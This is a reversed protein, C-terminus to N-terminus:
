EGFRAKRVMKRASKVALRNSQGLAVLYAIVGGGMAFVSGVLADGSWYIPRDGAKSVNQHEPGTVSKFSQNIAETSGAGLSFLAVTSLLTALRRKPTALRQQTLLVDQGLSREPMPTETVLKLLQGGQEKDAMLQEYSPVELKAARTLTAPPAESILWVPVEVGEPSAGLTDALDV